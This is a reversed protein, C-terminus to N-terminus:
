GGGLRSSGDESTGADPREMQIVSHVRELWLYQDRLGHRGRYPCNPLWGSSFFLLSRIGILEARYTLANNQDTHGEGAFTVSAVPPKQGPRGKSVM